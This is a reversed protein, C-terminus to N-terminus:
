FGYSINRMWYEEGNSSDRKVLRGELDTSAEGEDSNAGTTLSVWVNGGALLNKERVSVWKMGCSALCAIVGMVISLIYTHDLADNYASLVGSLLELPVTSPFM